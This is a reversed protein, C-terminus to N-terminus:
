RYSFPFYRVPDALVEGLAQAPPMGDVIPCFHAQHLLSSTRIKQLIETCATLIDVRGPSLDNLTALPLLAMPVMTIGGSRCAEVSRQLLAAGQAHLGATLFLQGLNYATLQWPHSFRSPLPITALSQIWDPQPMIQGTRVLEALLRCVIATQFPTHETRQRQMQLITDIWQHPAGDPPLNLYRNLLEGAQQYRTGDMFSYIQYALLRLSERRYKRGFAAEAKGIYDAFQQRYTPGCFGFNQAITGYMAGLARNDRHDISYRKREISLYATFDAPPEPRFDYRNFRITVFGHNACDAMEEGTVSSELTQALDIWSHSDSVSGNRNACAIRAVCWRHVVFAEEADRCAIDSIEKPTFLNSLMAARDPDDHCDALCHALAPLLQHRDAGIRGLLGRGAAFNLLGLPLSKFQDLFLRPNALCARFHIVDTPDSGVQLCDLAFIAQELDSCRIVKADPINELLGNEPYLLMNMKRGVLGYKLEEGTIALIRGDASVLGSAYVDKPWPRGQDLLVMGLALPLALSGGTLPPDDPDQLMLALFGVDSSKLRPLIAALAIGSGELSSAQPQPDAIFSFGRKGPIQGLLLWTISAIVGQCTLIPLCCWHAKILEEESCGPFTLAAEQRLQGPQPRLIPALALTSLLHRNLLPLLGQRRALEHLEALVSEPPLPISCPCRLRRSAILPSSRLLVLLEHWHAEGAPNM